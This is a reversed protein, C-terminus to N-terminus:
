IPKDTPGQYCGIIYFHDFKGNIPSRCTLRVVITKGDDELRMYDEAIWEVKNSFMGVAYVRRCLFSLVM